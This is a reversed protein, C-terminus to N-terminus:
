ASAPARGPDRDRDGDAEAGVLRDVLAGEVDHLEDLAVDQAARGLRLGREVLRGPPGHAVLHGVRQGRQVVDVGVRDPETVEPPVLPVDLALELAPAPLVFLHLDLSDVVAPEDLPDAVLQGPADGLLLAGRDHVAVVAHVVHHEGVVPRDPGDEVPLDARQAVREGVEPQQHDVPGVGVSVM